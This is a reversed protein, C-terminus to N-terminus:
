GGLANMLDRMHMLQHGYIANLFTELNVEGLAPHRGVRDLDKDRLTAVWEITRQRAAKLNALLQEPPIGAWRRHEAQNYADYDWGEPAGTGGVAIDQAMQLLSEESSVFHALLDRVTWPYPREYLVAEWQGPQISGFIALTKDMGKQLREKLAKVRETM